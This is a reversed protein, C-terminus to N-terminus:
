LLMEVPPVWPTRLLQSLNFGDLLDAAATPASTSRLGLSSAFLGLVSEVSMGRALQDMLTVAGDRKALRQREGNLVLPVHAYSVPPLGLLEAILMQRPTSSLLDDGRVVCEVGQYADDVVVALNYAPMGDNRGLVVDDVVGAFPGHILDVFTRSVGDARLRLAPHRGSSERETVARTTLRLCTGPYAGDPLEPRNPAASADAIERRTCWCPYV